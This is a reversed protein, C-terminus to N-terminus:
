VEITIIKQILFWGTSVLLLVITLLLKGLITNFLPRIYDPSLFYLLLAMVFPMACLIIAGMRGQATLSKIKGEVRKRNKLTETVNEFTEIMNGGTQRLIEVANVIIKLDANNLREELHRLAEEVSAGLQVERIAIRFQDSAPAKFETAIMQMSQQLTMGAKLANKMAYTIDVMQDDFMQRERQLLLKAFYFIGFLVAGVGWLGLLPDVHLPNADYPFVGIVFAGIESWVLLKRVQAPDRPKGDKRLYKAYTEAYRTNFDVIWKVWSDFFFIVVIAGTAFFLLEALVLYAM